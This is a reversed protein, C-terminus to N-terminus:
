TVTSISSMFSLAGWNSLREYLVKTTSFINGSLGSTCTLHLSLSEVFYEVIFYLYGKNYVTKYM